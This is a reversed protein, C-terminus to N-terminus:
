EPDSREPVNTDISDWLELVEEWTPPEIVTASELYSMDLDGQREDVVSELWRNIDEETPLTKGVGGFGTPIRKVWDSTKM